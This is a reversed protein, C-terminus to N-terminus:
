THSSNLRTSKRDLAERSSYHRYPAAHSVGARKALSRLSLNALGEEQLIALASERLIAALDGHHYDASPSSATRSVVKGAPRKVGKAKKARAAM